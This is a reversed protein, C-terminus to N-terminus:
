ASSITPLPLHTDSVAVYVIPLSLYDTKGSILHTRILVRPLDESKIAGLTYLYDEHVRYEHSFWDVNGTSSKTFSNPRMLFHTGSAEVEYGGTNLIIVSDGWPILTQVSASLDPADNRFIPQAYVSLLSLVLVGILLLRKM